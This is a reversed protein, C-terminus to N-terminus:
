LSSSFEGLLILDFDSGWDSNLADGPLMCFRDAVGAAEANSRAVKFVEAWDMATILAEPAVRAVEICFSWSRGCHRLCTLFDSFPVLFMAQLVGLQPLRSRCRLTQSNPGSQISRRCVALDM